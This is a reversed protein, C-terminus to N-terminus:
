GYGDGVLLIVNLYNYLKLIKKDLRKLIEIGTSNEGIEQLVLLLAGDIIEIAKEIKIM